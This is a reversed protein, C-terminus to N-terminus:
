SPEAGKETTPQVRGVEQFRVFRRWGKSVPNPPSRSHFAQLQSTQESDSRISRELARAVPTLVPQYVAAADFRDVGGM